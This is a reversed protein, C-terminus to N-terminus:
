YNNNNISAGGEDSLPEIVGRERALTLADIQFREILKFEIKCNQNINYLVNTNNLNNKSIM